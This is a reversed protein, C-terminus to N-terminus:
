VLANWAWSHACLPCHACPLHTRAGLLAHRPALACLAACAGLAAHARPQRRAQGLISASSAGRMHGWARSSDASRAHGWSPARTCACRTRESVGSRMCLTTVIESFRNYGGIINHLIQPLVNWFAIFAMEILLSYLCVWLNLFVYLCLVRSSLLSASWLKRKKDLRFKARYFDIQM